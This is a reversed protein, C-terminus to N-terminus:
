DGAVVLTGGDWTAVLRAADGEGERQVVVSGPVVGVMEGADWLEMVAQEQEGALARAYCGQVVPDATGDYVWRAGLVSHEMTGVPVAGDYTAPAGRYALPVHRVEGGVRVVFAEVGVEGAPDDYRFSGLVEVEGGLWAALLEPKSPSLTARHIIAM